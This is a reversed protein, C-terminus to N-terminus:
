SRLVGYYGHPYWEYESLNNTRGLDGQQFHDSWVNPDPGTGWPTPYAVNWEEAFGLTWSGGVGVPGTITTLVVPLSATNGASDTVTVTVDTVAAANPTGSLIGTTANLTAWSPVSTASWTYGSGTGGAAAFPYSYAQSVQGTAPAPTTIYLGGLAGTGGGGGGGGGTTTTSGTPVIQRGTLLSM